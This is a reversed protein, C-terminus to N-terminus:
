KFHILDGIRVAQTLDFYPKLAVALAPETLEKHEPIEGLLLRVLVLWKTVEVRFGLAGTPAQM